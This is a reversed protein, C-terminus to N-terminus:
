PVEQLVAEYAAVLVGLAVAPDYAPTKEDKEKYHAQIEERTRQEHWKGSLTIIPDCAWKHGMDRNVYPRLWYGAAWAAAMLDHLGSEAPVWGPCGHGACDGLTDEGHGYCPKRLPYIKGKGHCASCSVRPIRVGGHDPGYTMGTGGCGKCAHALKEAVALRLAALRARQEATM